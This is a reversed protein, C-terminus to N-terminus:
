IIHTLTFSVINLLLVNMMVIFFSVDSVPFIGVLRPVTPFIINEMVVYSLICHVKNEFYEYPV